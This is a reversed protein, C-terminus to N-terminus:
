KTTQSTTHPTIAATQAGPLAGPRGLHFGQGYNVGLRTILNTTQEDGIHEAITRKGLGTAIGVAAKIVLRDTESSLCSHVFEGDIKLFDFPLHKLYYLSGYGAGFDDLAFRCGLRTLDHAFQSARTMDIVAATETVEFVLNRPAVNSQELERTVLALLEADGISLGSLNIDLTLEERRAGSEALLAIARQTVWRDIEQVMGLREAIHLFADPEILNGRQDRMRLLLEYQSTHGTALGIIPQALLIFGDHQLAEGIRQAWTVRGKMTTSEHDEGAIHLEARDRGANKADYMALDANMLADELGADSGLLAIGASATLPRAHRGVAVTEQRLAGLLQNAVHRATAADAHPLLVVFEDGGIRAILDTERLRSALVAAARAIAEDGADHGLTDNIFKFHDLDVVIMAGGGGYRESLASRAQLEREIGRRNLLGTLADHEALHRLREEIHRRDTIDQIQALVMLPGGAANRLATAHIAVCVLESSARVLHREARYTSSDDGLLDAVAHEEVCLDDPHTIADLSTAELQDLSYGTIDCLAENVEVFRSDCDLMAMGIPAEEFARRFRDEADRLAIEARKRETIDRTISSAGVIRGSADKVPSITLSVEIERGDKRRRVTEYHDVREGRRLRALIAPLQDGGVPYLFSFHRGVAEAASYGFMREAGGNWSVVEGDLTGSMVADDTSEVIAALWSRDTEIGKRATIDRAIMWVMVVSGSADVVPSITLSVDILSGDKRVRVAECQELRGGSRCRAIVAQIEDQRDPPCLFALPRGVAEESTYGYLREAGGNWSAVRGDPTSGIVADYSCEVIAALHAQLEVAPKRDTIDVAFSVGGILEGDGARLPGIEVLYWREGGPSEVELSRAEGGLAARYLPEYLAWRVPGLADAALRGELTSSSVDERALAPGRVLVYRLESDFVAVAAGPMCDLVSLAWAESKAQVM